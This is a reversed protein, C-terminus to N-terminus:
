PSTQSTTLSRDQGHIQARSAAVARLRTVNAGGHIITSGPRENMGAIFNVWADDASEM